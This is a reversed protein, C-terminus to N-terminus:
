AFTFPNNSAIHSIKIGPVKPELWPVMWEMGPEESQSHGLVILATHQGMARADRVYEATEWESVEGVILVDPKETKLFGIQSRGGAAGPLVGIRKCVHNAPGIVRVQKIGLKEKALNAIDGLSMEKMEILGPNKSNYYSQWGLRELVGTLVGDPRLMHIYDHFRWVAIGNEKLLNMKYAYVDSNQLWGTDDLHNYFTPEHAIIFNAKLEIAKKIVDITAFMTTVIGTVVQSAVGSKLTDVTKDFPAGPIDKIILDIISQVTLAGTTLNTEPKPNCHSSASSITILGPVLLARSLFERRQITKNTKMNFLFTNSGCSLVNLLIM